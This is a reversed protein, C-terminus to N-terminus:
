NKAKMHYFGFEDTVIRAGLLNLHIPDRLYDPDTFVNERMANFPIIPSRSTVSQIRGVLESTGANPFCVVNLVIDKEFCMENLIRFREFPYKGDSREDQDFTVQGSIFNEYIKEQARREKILSSDLESRMSWVANTLPPYFGRTSSRDVVNQPHLWNHLPEVTKMLFSQIFFEFGKLVSFINKASMIQFFTIQAISDWHMIRAKRWDAQYELSPKMNLEMYIGQISGRASSHIFNSVYDILEFDTMGNQALSYWVDDKDACISDLRSPIISCAVNSSGFLVFTNKTAVEESSLWKRFGNYDSQSPYRIGKNSVTQIICIWLVLGIWIKLRRLLFEKMDNRYTRTLYHFWLVSGRRNMFTLVSTFVRAVLLGAIRPHVPSLSM